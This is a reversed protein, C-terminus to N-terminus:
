RPLSRTHSCVDEWVGNRYRKYACVPVVKPRISM